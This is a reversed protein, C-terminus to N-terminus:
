IIMFIRFSLFEKKLYKKRKILSLEGPYLVHDFGAAPKTENLENMSQDVHEKFM